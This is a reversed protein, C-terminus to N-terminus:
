RKENTDGLCSWFSELIGRYYDIEKELAIIISTTDLIGQRQCRKVAKKYININETKDVDKEVLIEKVIFKESYIKSVMECLIQAQELTDFTLLQSDSNLAIDLFTSTLPYSNRYIHQRGLSKIYYLASDVSIGINKSEKKPSFCIYKIM